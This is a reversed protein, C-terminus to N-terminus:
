QSGVGWGGFSCRRTRLSEAGDPELAEPPVGGELVEPSGSARPMESSGAAPCSVSNAGDAPSAVEAVDSCRRVKSIQAYHKIHLHYSQLRGDVFNHGLVTSVLWAGHTESYYSVSEGISIIQQHDDANM